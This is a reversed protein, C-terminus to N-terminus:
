SKRSDLLSVNGDDDSEGEEEKQRQLERRELEEVISDYVSNYFNIEKDYKFRALLSKYLNSIKNEEQVVHCDDFAGEGLVKKSVKVEREQVEFKLGNFGASFKYWKKNEKEDERVIESKWDLDLELLAESVKLQSSQLTENIKM